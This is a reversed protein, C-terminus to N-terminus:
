QSCELTRWQNCHLLHIMNFVHYYILYGSVYTAKILCDYTHTYFHFTAHRRQLKVSIYM